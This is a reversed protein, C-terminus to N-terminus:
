TNERRWPLHWSPRYVERIKDEHTEYRKFELELKVEKLGEQPNPYRRLYVAYLAAVHYCVAPISFVVKGLAVGYRSGVGGSASASLNEVSVLARV